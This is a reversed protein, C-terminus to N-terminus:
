VPLQLECPIALIKNKTSHVSQVSSTSHAKPSVATEHTSHALDASETTNQLNLKQESAVPVDTTSHLNSPTPNTSHLNALIKGTLLDEQDQLRKSRCTPAVPTKPKQPKKPKKSDVEVDLASEVDKLLEEEVNDVKEVEVSGVIAGNANVASDDETQM